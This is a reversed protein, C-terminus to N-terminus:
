TSGARSGALANKTRWVGGGAPTIYLRCNGPVCTDAIALATTRGGAVYDNPVYLFSNRLETDPYLAESPGVPVWSGKKGKGRPFPRRNTTTFAARATDMQGVSIANNPYARELFEQVAASAPGELGGRDPLAQLRQSVLPPLEGGSAAAPPTTGSASVAVAGGAAALAAVLGGILIQRRRRTM